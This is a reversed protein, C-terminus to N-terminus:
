QGILTYRGQDIRVLVRGRRDLGFHDDPSMNYVGHVGVVDKNTELADRVAQRFEATGPQASKLAVPVAAELLRYADYAHGAFSSFSGTGYKEEYQQVFAAGIRKSPHGDAIQNVVVVPGVPLIVGDAAKGAVSLFAQNAVAHTQYIQGKYGREVLTTQPLAAPSGSGIVIIADPRASVLKLVQGTVSTDNRAYREIVGLKIGAQELLPNLAALWEDGYADSFGIFGLTKVGASKMHEVLAGAMVSNHQPTRFAWQGRDAPLTVPSLAIHPTKTEFAVQAIAASAPTVASGVLVDVKEETVLKRANKTANSPDSGDDLVIYRVKEGGIEGPLLAFANKEPIGLSAGPGTTSVSIGVVVEALASQGALLGLASCLVALKKVKMM